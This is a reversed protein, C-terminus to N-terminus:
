RGSGAGDTSMAIPGLGLAISVAAGGSSGGSTHDPNWPNRTVGHLRSDTLVKHGYEPTTTKAFLVADAARWQAIADADSAPVNDKMTLSAFATRLGKTAILDKASVPVGALPGFDSGDRRRADLADAAARAGEANLTAIPNFPTARECRALVGELIDRAAAKGSTFADVIEAVTRGAYDQRPM